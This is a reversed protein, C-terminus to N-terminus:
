LQRNQQCAEDGGDRGDRPLHSLVDRDEDVRGRGLRTQRREVEVGQATHEVAHEVGRVRRGEAAFRVDVAVTHHDHQEGVGDVLHDAIRARGVDGAEEKAPVDVRQVPPQEIVRLDEVRDHGVREGRQAAGMRDGLDLLEDGGRERVLELVHDAVNLM